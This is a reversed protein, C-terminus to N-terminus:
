GKPPHPVEMQAPASPAPLGLLAAAEARIRRLEHNHPPDKEMRRVARDYWQRAEDRRGLQWCAMGLFFWDYIDGGKHLAMSKELAAL